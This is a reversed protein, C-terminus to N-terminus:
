RWRTSPRSPGTTRTTTSSSRLWSRFREIASSRSTSRRRSANCTSRGRRGVRGVLPETSRRIWVFFCRASVL